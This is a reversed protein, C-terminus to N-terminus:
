SVRKVGEKATWTFHAGSTFRVHVKGDSETREDHVPYGLKGTHGANVWAYYLAGKSNLIHTGTSPHWYAGTEQSGKKFYVVAGGGPKSMEDTVPFGLRDVGGKNMWTYYIDGRGNIARSGTGESWYINTRSGGKAFTVYAGGKYATEDSSPFGYGNAGGSNMWKHYIGGNSNLSKAGTSSSWVMISSYKTVPNYFRQTAGGAYGAEDTTPYGFGREFGGKSFREGIAGPWYMAKAGTNPSWYVSRSNKFDRVAGSGYTLVRENSTPAGLTSSNSKYYDGIAGFLTFGNVTNPNTVPSPSSTNAFLSSASGKPKYNANKALNQLDALTGNFFNSDGAFVGSDTYQWIDYDTYGGPMVGPTSSYNAVHLPLHSLGKLDGMCTKVWNTATYIAPYRGTLKKYEDAFSAVWNKLQISNMNYCTNGLSSYPNWEFDLLGPLTKGDASWGGGNAVFFRAQTAGDSLSPLAFHYAGRVMGVNAAGNYQSSFVPSKYSLGETAKVYAFRAGKNYESSWNVNPQWGSVDMGPVGNVGYTSAISPVGVGANPNAEGMQAGNVGYDPEVPVSGNETAHAVTPALVAGVMSTMLLVRGLHKFSRM